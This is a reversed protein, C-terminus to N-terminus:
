GQPAGTNNALGPTHPNQVSAEAPTISSSPVFKDMDGDKEPTDPRAASIGPTSSTDPYSASHIVADTNRNVLTLKGAAASQIASDMANSAISAADSDLGGLTQGAPYIILYTQKALCGELPIEINNGSDNTLSLKVTNLDLDTDTANKLEIFKMQNGNTHQMPSAADPNALIENILIQQSSATSCIPAICKGGACRWSTCDSNQVCSADVECRKCKAGGCDVSTELGNQKGDECSSPEACQGNECNTSECDSSDNCYQGIACKTTCSGGCDKDSENGSKIGDSCTNVPNKADNCIGEVCVFQSACDEDKDCNKGIACKPCKSGGCDTDTEDGNIVDDSCSICEGGYCITGAGSASCDDDNECAFAACIGNSCEASLCDKDSECGKGTACKNKCPGGCDVDTEHGNRQRDQCTNCIGTEKNCSHANDSKCDSDKKCFNELCKQSKCYGSKCDASIKCKQKLDCADCMSGGCDVDTEDSDKKGNTCAEDDLEVCTGRVTDCTYIISDPCDATTKCGGIADGKDCGSIGCAAFLALSALLYRNLKM